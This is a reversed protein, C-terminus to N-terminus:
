ADDRKWPSTGDRYPWLPCYPRACVLVEEPPRCDLCMAQMVALLPMKKVGEAELMEATIQKPNRGWVRGNPGRVLLSEYRKSKPPVDGEKPLCKKPTQGDNIAQGAGNKAGSVPPLHSPVPIGSLIGSADRERKAKKACKPSCYVKWSRSLRFSIKCVPCARYEVQKKAMLELSWRPSMM